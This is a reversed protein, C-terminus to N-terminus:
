MEVLLEGVEFFETLFAKKVSVKMASLEMLSVMEPLVEILKVDTPTM